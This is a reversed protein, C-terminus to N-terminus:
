TEPLEAVFREFIAGVAADFAQIADAVRSSPAEREERYSGLLLLARGEVRTLVLEIEVVVRSGDAGILQEFRQIRGDILYDADVRVAPTVVTTAVGAARLYDVLRDQVMISPADAWRQYTYQAVEEPRDPTRYLIRRGEALAEVRLRNVELTGDIRPKELPAPKAIELRYFHDQPAPGSACASLAAAAIASVIRLAIRTRM